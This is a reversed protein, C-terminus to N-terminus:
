LGDEKHAEIGKLVPWERALIAYIVDDAWRGKFRIAEILHAEKRMGLSAMLGMSATNAPDISAFIRHKKLDFFLYDFLARLAEQGYGQRQHVPSINIGIEVQGRIKLPFHLGCDGILLPADVTQRIVALQFWTGPTDPEIEELPEIFAEVDQVNKPEFTNHRYVESLGRYTFIDVADAMVVKRILLRPTSIASFGM